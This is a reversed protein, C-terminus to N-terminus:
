PYFMTEGQSFPWDSYLVQPGSLENKPRKATAEENMLKVAVAEAASAIDHRDLLDQKVAKLMQLFAERNDINIWDNLSRIEDDRKKYKVRVWSQNKVKLRQYRPTTEEPRYWGILTHGSLTVPDVAVLKIFGNTLAKDIRDIRNIASAAANRTPSGYITPVYFGDQMAGTSDPTYIRQGNADWGFVRITKNNDAASDLVAVLYVAKSPDRITCYEGEVTTYQAPTCEQDGPGNIHYAFWQSRIVTPLGGNNVALVTYVDSPLTVCGNCVCIDMEGISQDAIGKNNFRKCADSM